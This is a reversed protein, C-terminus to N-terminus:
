PCTVELERPLESKTGARPIVEIRIPRAATAPAVGLERLLPAEACLAHRAVSEFLPATRPDSVLAPGYALVAGYANRRNYPGAIGAYREPTVEVREVAGSARPIQLVFRSSFTELGQVSSFVRPAPSAGTAAAAGAVEPLGLVDAAMRLTGLAFLAIAAARSM